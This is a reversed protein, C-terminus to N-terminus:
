GRDGIKTRKKSARAIMVRVVGACGMGMGALVMLNRDSLGLALYRLMMVGGLLGLVLPSGDIWETQDPEVLHGLDLEAVARILYQPNGNGHTALEKVQQPALKVKYHKGAARVLKTAQELSIPRLEWRPFKLYLEARKPLTAALLLTAGNELWLEIHNRLGKPIDQAKDIILIHREEQLTGGIEELLQAQTKRKAKETEEDIWETEIALATCIAKLFDGMPSTWRFYHAQHGSDRLLQCVRQCLFTKGVGWQGHMLLSRGRGLADVLFKEEASRCSVGLHFDDEPTSEGARGLWKVVEQRPQKLRKDWTNKVVARYVRRGQRYSRIFAM